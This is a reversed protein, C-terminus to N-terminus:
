FRWRDTKLGSAVLLPTPDPYVRPTAANARSASDDQQPSTTDHRRMISACNKRVVLAGEPISEANHQLHGGIAIEVGAVRVGSQRPTSDSM